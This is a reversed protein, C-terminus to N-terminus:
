CSSQLPRAVAERVGLDLFRAGLGDGREAVREPDVVVLLAHREVVEERERELHGDGDGSLM